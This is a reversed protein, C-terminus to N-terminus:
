KEYWGQIATESPSLKVVRREVLIVSAPFVAVLIDFDRDLERITGDGEREETFVMLFSLNIFLDPMRSVSMWRCSQIKKTCTSLVTLMKDILESSTLVSQKTPNSEFKYHLCYYMMIITHKHLWENSLCPHSALRHEPTPNFLKLASYEGDENRLVNNFQIGCNKFCSQLLLLFM